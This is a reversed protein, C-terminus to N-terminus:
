ASTSFVRPRAKFNAEYVERGFFRDIIVSGPPSRERVRMGGSTGVHERDLSPQWEM